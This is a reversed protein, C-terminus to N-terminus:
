QAFGREKFAKFDFVLAAWVPLWIAAVAIGNWPAYIQQAMLYFGLYYLAMLPVLLVMGWLPFFVLFPAVWTAYWPFQAPSLIFILLILAFIHILVQKEPRLGRSNEAALPRLVLLGLGTVMLSTVIGRAAFPAVSEQWILGLVWSVMAEFAPFFASNTKWKQTYAVIGAGENLGAAVYPWVIGVGILACIVIVGLLAFPRGLMRRWMLPLLLAPWLKVGAALALLLSGIAFRARMAALTAALLLPVLLAEMHASNLFEKIVLPNWWYLALWGSGRGIQRLMLLLMAFSAVEALLILLRWALLSWPAVWHSLAFVAEAVPPYVTTLDPHNVREVVPYALDALRTLEAGARGALVDAPSHRYPSIGHALVGGDWLYRQYDDELVPESALMVLRAMLGIAFVALVVRGSNAPLDARPLVFRLAVFLVGAGMLGGVLPVIPMEVVRYDYSFYHSFVTLLVAAAFILGGLMWFLLRYRSTGALTQPHPPSLSHATNM